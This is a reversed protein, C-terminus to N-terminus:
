RLNQVLCSLPEVTVINDSKVVPVAYAYQDSSSAIYMSTFPRCLHTRGVTGTGFFLPTGTLAFAGGDNAGDMTLKPQFWLGFEVTTNAIQPTVNMDIRISNTTGTDLEDFRLTGVRTGAVPTGYPAHFDSQLPTDSVDTDASTDWTQSFDFIRTVGFPLASGGFLDIGNPDEAGPWWPADTTQQATLSLDFPIWKNVSDDGIYIPYGRRAFGGSFSFGGKTGSVTALTEPSAKRTSGDSTNWVLLYDTTGYDAAALEPLQNVTKNAM